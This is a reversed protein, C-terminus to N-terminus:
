AARVGARGALGGRAGGTALQPAAFGHYVKNNQQLTRAQKEDDTAGQVQFTRENHEHLNHQSRQRGPGTCTWQKARPSHKREQGCRSAVHRRM